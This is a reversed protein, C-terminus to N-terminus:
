GPTARAAWRQVILTVLPSGVVLVAMGAMPAAMGAVFAGSAIVVPIWSRTLHRRFVRGDIEDDALGPDTAAIRVIRRNLLGLLLLWGAYFGIGTRLPSYQSVVATPFPMFAVALLLMLNAWLLRNNSAKLQGMLTHHGAWFRALVLFSVLFAVYDPILDLLAQGLAADTPAAVHPLKVEVVLLTMAIAFVADSFFTLRELQDHQRDM